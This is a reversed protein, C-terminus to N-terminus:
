SRPEHGYLRAFHALNERPTLDQYVIPEHGLYGIRALTATTPRAPFCEGDFLRLTGARPRSLCAILRLLTSKGAGNQGLVAVSEGREVTLDVGRLVPVIGYAKELGRADIVAAQM